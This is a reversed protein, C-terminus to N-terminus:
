QQQPLCGLYDTLSNRHTAAAVECMMTKMLKTCMIGDENDLCITFSETVTAAMIFTKSCVTSVVVLKFVMM